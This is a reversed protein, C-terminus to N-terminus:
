RGLVARQVTRVSVGHRKAIAEFTMDPNEVVTKRIMERRIEIVPFMDTMDYRCSAFPCTLCSRRLDCGTDAYEVQEPLRSLSM